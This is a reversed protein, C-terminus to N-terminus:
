IFTNVTIKSFGWQLKEDNGSDSELGQQIDQSAISNLNGCM